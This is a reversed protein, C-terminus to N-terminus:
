GATECVGPCTRFGNLRADMRDRTEVKPQKFEVRAGSARRSPRTWVAATSRKGSGAVENSFDQTVAARGVRAGFLESDTRTVRL